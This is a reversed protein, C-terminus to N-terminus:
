GNRKLTAKALDRYQRVSMFFLSDGVRVMINEPWHEDGLIELIHEPSERYLYKMISCDIIADRLVVPDRKIEVPTQVVMSKLKVYWGHDYTKSSHVFKIGDEYVGVFITMDGVHKLRTVECWRNYKLAGQRNLNYIEKNSSDPADVDVRNGNRASLVIHGERLWDGSPFLDDTEPNMKYYKPELM